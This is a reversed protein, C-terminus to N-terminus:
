RNEDKKLTEQFGGELWSFWSELYNGSHFQLNVHIYSDLILM